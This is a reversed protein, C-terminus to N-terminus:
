TFPTRLPAVTVIVWKAVPLYVACTVNGVSAKFSMADIMIVAVTLEMVSLAM